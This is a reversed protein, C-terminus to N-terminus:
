AVSGDGEELGGRSEATPAGLPTHELGKWIARSLVRARTDLWKAVCNKENGRLTPNKAFFHLVYIKVGFFSALGSVQLFSQWQMLFVWKAKLKTLQPSFIIKFHFPSGEVNKRTRGMSKGPHQGGGIAKLWLVALWNESNKNFGGM